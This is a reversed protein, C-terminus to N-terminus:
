NSLPKRTAPRRHLVLLALTVAALSGPEPVLTFSINDVIESLNIPIPNAGRGYSYPPTPDDPLGLHFVSSLVLQMPSGKAGAVLDIGRADRSM